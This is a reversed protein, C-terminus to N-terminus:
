RTEEAWRLFFHWARPMRHNALSNMSKATQRLREHARLMEFVRRASEMLERQRCVSIDALLEKCEVWRFEPFRVWLVEEERSERSESESESETEDVSLAVEDRFYDM